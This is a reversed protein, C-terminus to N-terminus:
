ISAYEIRRAIKLIDKGFISAVKQSDNLEVRYKKIEDKIENIANKYAPNHNRLKFFEDSIIKLEKAAADFKLGKNTKPITPIEITNEVATGSAGWGGEAKAENLRKNKQILSLINM